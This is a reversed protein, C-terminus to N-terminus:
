ASHWLAANEGADLRRAGRPVRPVPIPLSLDPVHEAGLFRFVVWCGFMGAPKRFAVYVQPHERGCQACWVPEVDRGTCEGTTTLYFQLGVGRRSIDGRFQLLSSM